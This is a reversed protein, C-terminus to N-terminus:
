SSSSAGSEFARRRALRAHQAAIRAGRVATLLAAGDGTGLVQRAQELEAPGRVYARGWDDRAVYGTEVLWRRLEVHDTRLMAGADALWDILRRNVEDERLVRQPELAWSALALVLARDPESLLGLHLGSKLVLSELGPPLQM